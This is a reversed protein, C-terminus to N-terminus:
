QLDILHSNLRNGLIDYQEIKVRRNNWDANLISFSETTILHGIRHQNYEESGTFSHTLGSSTVDILIQGNWNLSSIESLHRDGSMFIPNLVQSSVVLDFLQKRQNPSIQGCKM